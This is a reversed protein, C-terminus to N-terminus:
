GASQERLAEEVSRTSHTLEQRDEKRHTRPTQSPPIRLANKVTRRLGCQRRGRPAQLLSADQTSATHHFSSFFKRKTAVGCDPPSGWKESDLVGASDQGCLTNQTKAGAKRRKHSDAANPQSASARVKETRSASPLPQSAPM